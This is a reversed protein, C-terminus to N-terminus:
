RPPGKRLRKRAEELTPFRDPSFGDMWWTVGAEQYTEIREREEQSGDGESWNIIVMDFPDNNSRYQKMYDIADRIEGPTIARDEGNGTVAIMGDWRAGRRFPARKESWGGCAWVPIRPSQVPKPLFCVEELRYHKGSYSFPEGSWLGALADLGEDLKEALIKPSSEEGFAEFEGPQYGLGVGLILRGQSLHDLTVTERALKWPRRRAVPTIMTGLKIQSTKVAMGALTVWPDVAAEPKHMHDWLFIGDWGSDEAEHALDVLLPANAFEGVSAFDAGYKM